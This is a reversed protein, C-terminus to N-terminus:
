FKDIIIDTSLDNYSSIKSEQEKYWNLLKNQNCIEPNGIGFFYVTLCQELIKSKEKELIFYAKNKYYNIAFNHLDNYLEENYERQTNINYHMYLNEGIKEYIDSENNIFPDQSIIKEVYNIYINEYEYKEQKNIYIKNDKIIFDESFNIKDNIENMFSSLTTHTDKALNNIIYNDKLKNNITTDILNDLDKNIFDQVKNITKDVMKEVMIEQVSGPTYDSQIFSPNINIVIDWPIQIYTNSLEDKLVFKARVEGANLFCRNDIKREVEMGNHQIIFEDIYLGCNPLIYQIQFTKGLLTKLGYDYTFFIKFAINHDGVTYSKNEYLPQKNKYLTVNIYEYLFDM